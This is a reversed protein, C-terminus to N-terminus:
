RKKMVKKVKGGKRFGTPGMSAAAPPQSAASPASPGGLGGVGQRAAGVRSAAAAVAQRGKNTLLPAAPM